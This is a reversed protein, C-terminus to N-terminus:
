GEVSPDLSAETDVIPDAGDHSVDHEAAGTWSISVVLFADDAMEEGDMRFNVTADRQSGAGVGDTACELAGDVAAAADM